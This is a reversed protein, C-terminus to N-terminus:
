DLVAREGAEVEILALDPDDLGKPFWASAMPDLEKMRAPDTTIRGKGAISVYNQEDPDAYALNIQDFRGIEETKGSARKTFFYLKGEFETAADTPFAPSPRGLQDDDRGQHGQDDVLAQGAGRQSETRRDGDAHEQTTPGREFRGRASGTGPKARIFSDM